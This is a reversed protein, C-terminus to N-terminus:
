YKSLASHKTLKELIYLAKMRKAREVKVNRNRGRKSKNVEQPKLVIM